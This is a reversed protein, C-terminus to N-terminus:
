ARHDRLRGRQTFAPVKDQLSTLERIYALPLLDARTAMAQGIKIFTPGLAFCSASCVLAGAVRLHREESEEKRGIFWGRHYAFVFIYYLVFTSIIQWARRWGRLGHGRMEEDSNYRSVDSPNPRLWSGTATPLSRVFESGAM